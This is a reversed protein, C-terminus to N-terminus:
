EPRFFSRKQIIPSVKQPSFVVGDTGNLLGYVEGGGRDYFGLTYTNGAVDSIGIKMLPVEAKLSDTVPGPELYKDATLLSVADLFSNVRSTDPNQLGEVSFVRGRGRNIVFGSNGTGPFRARLEEFNTWNFNFVYKDRWQSVDLEFIGSVYVRYGPIAMLYVAEERPYKFWAQTKAANGGVIIEQVAEGGEFLTVRTGAEALVGAVSDRVNRALPRKAEAQQLTAFLVSVMDRDAAYTDNVMWQSGEYALEVTRGESELTVRDIRSYDALRFVDKAAFGGATRQVYWGVAITTAVIVLLM